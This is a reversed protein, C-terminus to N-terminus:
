GPSMFKCPSLNILEFYISEITTTGIQPENVDLAYSMLTTHACSFVYCHNFWVFLGDISVTIQMDQKNLRTAFWITPDHSLFIIPDHKDVFFTPLM